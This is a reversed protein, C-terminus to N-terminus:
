AEIQLFNVIQVDFDFVQWNAHNDLVVLRVILKIHKERKEEVHKPVDYHAVITALRDVHKKIEELSVKSISHKSARM